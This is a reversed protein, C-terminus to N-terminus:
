LPLILPWDDFTGKCRTVVDVSSTVGTQRMVPGRRRRTKCLLVARRWGRLGVFVAPGVGLATCTMWVARVLRVQPAGPSGFM